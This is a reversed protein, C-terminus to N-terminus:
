GPARLVAFQYEWGHSGTSEFTLFEEVAGHTELLRQWREHSRLAFFRYPRIEGFEPVGEFDHGGWTGIGLPADPAVARVLEAIAEDIRDDPVHVFTSMTWLSEFAASPFPLHYLSAAVAPIGQDRMAAVNGAALDVGVVDLGDRLWHKADTGPGAGVDVLRSRREYHLLGRFRDYLHARDGAVNGRVGTAAEADYFAVLDADIGM